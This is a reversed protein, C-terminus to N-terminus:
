PRPGSSAGAADAALEPTMYRMAPFDGSPLARSAGLIEAEKPPYRPPLSALIV